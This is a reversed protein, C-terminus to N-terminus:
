EHANRRLLKAYVERKGVGRERAAIKVADMHAHGAERLERVREAVPVGSSATRNAAGVLIVMEGKVSQRESLKQRVQEATGSLFEEHLKTMERALVVDRDGLVEQVDALAEIVRRPTEFLIVTSTAAAIKQLAAIRKGRRSPLFGKFLFADTPLGSAALAATAASPGPVPVVRLGEDLAARVVRYGPDSITPTGADSVLAVSEGGSLRACIERARGAENHEHCSFITTDIQYHRLLRSTRRTDECAIADVERLVSLARLTIDELNGLPTAVVYLAGPPM